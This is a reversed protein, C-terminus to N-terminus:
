EDLLNGDITFGAQRASEIGLADFFVKRYARIYSAHYRPDRASTTCDFRIGGGSRLSEFRPKVIVESRQRDRAFDLQTQLRRAEDKLSHLSGANEAALPMRLMACLGLLTPLWTHMRM